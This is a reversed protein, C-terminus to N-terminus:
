YYHLNHSMASFDYVRSCENYIYEPHPHMETIPVPVFQQQLHYQMQPPYSPIPHMYAPPQQQPPQQWLLFEAVRRIMVASSMIKAHESKEYLKETKACLSGGTKIDVRCTCSFYIKGSETVTREFIWIPTELRNLDDGFKCFALLMNVFGNPDFRRAGLHSQRDTELGPVVDLRYFKFRNTIREVLPNAMKFQAKSLVVSLEQGKFVRGNMISVALVGDESTKMDIFAAENFCKVNAVADPKGIAKNFEECLEEPTTDVGVNRVFLHKMSEPREGMFAVNVQKHEPEAWEGCITVGGVKVKKQIILKRAKAALRNNEFQIFAFGRNSYNPPNTSNKYITVDVVGALVKSLDNLIEDKTLTRKICTIYLERNDISIKVSIPCGPRIHAGNLNDVAAKAGETSTYKVFAFGQTNLADWDEMMLRTEYLEGVTSFFPVLEDELLNRPLSNVFVESGREPNFTKLPPRPGFTRQRKERYITCDFKKCVDEIKDELVIERREKAAM